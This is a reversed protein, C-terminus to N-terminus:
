PPVRAGHATHPRNGRVPPRRGGSARSSSGIGAFVSLFEFLRQEGSRCATAGISRPAFRRSSAGAPRAAISRGWVRQRASGSPRLSFLDIRATALEIVSPSWRAAPCIEVIAAANDDTLGFWPARSSGSSSCSSRGFRSIDGCIWAKRPPPCPCPPVPVLHEGRVHLAERSTILLELRPCAELLEAIPGVPM